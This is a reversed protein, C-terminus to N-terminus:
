RDATLRVQLLGTTEFEDTPHGWTNLWMSGARIARGVRRARARVKTFAATALGFETANARRVADAEDDFVGMVQVAGFVEQQVIPVGPNTVELLLPRYFAGETLPGDLVPGGRAIVDAYATAEAVSQEIRQM